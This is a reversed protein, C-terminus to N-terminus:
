LFISLLDLMLLNLVLLRLGASGSGLSGETAIDFFLLLKFDKGPLDSLSM